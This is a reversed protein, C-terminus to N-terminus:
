NTVDDPEYVMLNFSTEQKQKHFEYKRTFNDKLLGLNGTLKKLDAILGYAIVKGKDTKETKEILELIKSVIERAYVRARLKILTNYYEELLKMLKELNGTMASKRLPNIKSRSEDERLEQFKRKIEGDYRTIIGQLDKIEKDYKPIYDFNGNTLIFQLRHLLNVAYFVGRTSDNVLSNIKKELTGIFNNERDGIVDRIIRNRNTFIQSYYIGQRTVDYDDKFNTDFKQKESLIFGTWSDGRKGSVLDNQLNTLFRKIENQISTKEGSKYLTDLLQYRNTTELIGLEPLFEHILYNDIESQSGEAYTLYYNIIDECLKYACAAIIRDAPYSITAQGLTSYKRSFTNDAVSNDEPYFRQKYQVLNVRVGRKYNAFDSNSFDQFITDALMEDIDRNSVDSLSLNKANEGDMLYVEDYIGPQFTHPDNEEM